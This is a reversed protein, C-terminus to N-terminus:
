IHKKEGLYKTFNVLFYNKINFWSMDILDHTYSVYFTIFIDMTYYWKIFAPHDASSQDCELVKFWAKGRTAVFLTGVKRSLRLLNM